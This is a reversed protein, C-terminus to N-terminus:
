RARCRRAKGGGGGGDHRGDARGAISQHGFLGLWGRCCRLWGGRSASRRVNERDFLVAHSNGAGFTKRAISM